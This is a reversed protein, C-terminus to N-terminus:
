AEAQGILIYENGLAEIAEALRENKVLIYDTDFTSLAFVSIGRAALVATIGALIGVLSFDLTGVVRLARWGEERSLADKPARDSPCILSIESDTKGVFVFGGLFDIQSVDKVKCVTFEPRLIEITRM